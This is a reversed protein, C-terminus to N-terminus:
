HACARWRFGALSRLNLVSSREDRLRVLGDAVDEVKYIPMGGAERSVLDGPSVRDTAPEMLVWDLARYSAM